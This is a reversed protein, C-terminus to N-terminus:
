RRKRLGFLALLGFLMLDAAGGGGGGGSSKNTVQVSVTDLGKLGDSDTVTLEFVLTADADVTPATLNATAMNANSLTATPGSVQRWNYTLTGGNTDSGSGFLQISAGEDVSLDTGANAVPAVAGNSVMRSFPLNSIGNIQVNDIHWGLAYSSNGTDTGLRFRVKVHKGALGTLTLSADKLAPYDESSVGTYAMLGKLPNDAGTGNFITGTYAPTLGSSARQWAGGDVSYEVVGGDYPTGDDRDNEFAFAQQWRVTLLGSSDVILDPSELAISGAVPAELLQYYYGDPTTTSAALRVTETLAGSVVPTTWDAIIGRNGDDTTTSKILDYNVYRVLTADMTTNDVTASDSAVLHLPLAEAVNANTLTIHVTQDRTDGVPVAGISVPNAGTVTLKNQELNVSVNTLATFGTSRLRYSFDAEDGIDLVGDNDADSTLTMNLNYMSAASGRGFSEVVGAHDTSDRNPAIAGAGLGRKAFAAAFLEYDSTSTAEVVALVADRAEVFTPSSPTAKYSAVLYDKMRTQATAFDHNKLLAAYCEWLMTAWVTGSGHVEPNMAIQAFTLPNKSMDTTYPFGRIGAFYADNATRGQDSYGGMAYLGDWTSNNAVATDSAEVTLLLAHFDGWGEGLSGGQNNNLGNANGILRNSIYHGWEHAVTLADFGSDRSPQATAFRQLRVTISGASATRLLAGDAQTVSLVPITITADEGAMGPADGAANNAIIVGVAGANQANKVKVVFTCEGRDILAIKGALQGANSASECADSPTGTADQYAVLAASVDFSQPGFAATNSTYFGSGGATVAINASDGAHNYLYMQMTPSGGDSPTSMNANNTGSSDQAEALLVDGQVGGRGYNNAQANGAAENFGHDYFWDHLWNTVYFMEVVSAKKQSDNANAAITTDLVYDFKPEGGAATGNTNARLDSADFGDQGSIDAYADINNGRTQTADAALWPDNSSIPGKILVVLNPAVTYDPMFNNNEGTPHPHGARAQPGDWPLKIGDTDAYVRYGFGEKATLNKRFLLEGNDAAFVFSYHQGSQKGTVAAHLELYYAPRLTGQLPFYIPKSRVPTVLKLQGSNGLHEHETFGAAATKGQLEAASVSGGLQAFAMSIASEVPQVFRQALKQELSQKQKGARKYEAAVETSLNGSLAILDHNRNMILAMDAGFVDIGDLKQIVKAIIAGRGTDHIERVTAGSLTAPDLGYLSAYHQLHTRAAFNAQLQKQLPSTGMKKAGGGAWVFNPQNKGQHWSVSQASDILDHGLAQQVRVDHNPVMRKSRTTQSATAPIAQERWASYNPLPNAAFALNSIGASIAAALLTLRLQM